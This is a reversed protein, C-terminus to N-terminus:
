VTEWTGYHWLPDSGVFTTHTTRIMIRPFFNNYREGVGVALVNPTPRLRAGTLHKASGREATRAARQNRTPTPERSLQDYVSKQSEGVRRRPFHGESPTLFIGLAASFSHHLLICRRAALYSARRQLWRESQIAIYGRETRHADDRPS